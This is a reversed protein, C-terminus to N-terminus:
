TLLALVDKRVTEPFSIRLSVNGPERLIGDLVKLYHRAEDPHSAMPIDDHWIRVLPKQLWSLDGLCEDLADWNFGFYAPFMLSEAILSLLMQKESIGRPVHVLHGHGNDLNAEPTRFHFMPDKM